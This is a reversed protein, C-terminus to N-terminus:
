IIEVNIGDYEAHTGVFRVYIIEFEYNIKVVLRYKNGCINFVVRGNKLISASAYKEKVQAPDAWKAAEAENFWAALGNGAEPFRKAFARLPRRSMVRMFIGRSLASPLCFTGMIPVNQGSLCAFFGQEPQGPPVIMWDGVFDNVFEGGPLQSNYSTASNLLWNRLKNAL